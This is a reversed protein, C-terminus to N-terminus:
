TGNYIEGIELILHPPEYTVTNVAWEVGKYRISRIRTWNMQLFEDAIIKLQNNVRKDENVKNGDRYWKSIMRNMEGPYQKAIVDDPGWVGPRIERPMSFMVDDYFKM